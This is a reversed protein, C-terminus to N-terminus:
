LDPEVLVIYRSDTSNKRYDALGALSRGWLGGSWCWL